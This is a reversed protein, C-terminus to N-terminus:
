LLGILLIVLWFGCLVFGFYCDMLVVIKEWVLIVLLGELYVLGESFVVFNGVRCYVNVFGYLNIVLRLVLVFLCFEGIM